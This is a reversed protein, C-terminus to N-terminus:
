PYFAAVQELAQEALTDDAALWVVLSGSRFYFHRQGMGNLEYITRDGAQRTGTPLFPSRGEAIKGTMAAVIEGAMPSAPVGTVWLTVASQGYVAMAGSILPFDKGHLRAVEAVAEPGIIKQTLPAGGLQAPVNLSASESRSWDYVLYGLSAALILVGASMLLWPGPRRLM